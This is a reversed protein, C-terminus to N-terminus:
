EDFSTTISFRNAALEAEFEEWWTDSLDASEAMWADLFTLLRQNEPRLDQAPLPKEAQIGPKVPRGAAVEREILEAIREARLLGADRARRAVDDPLQLVVEVTTM